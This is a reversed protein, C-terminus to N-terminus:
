YNIFLIILLYNIFFIQLFYFNSKNHSHDTDYYSYSSPSRSKSYSRGSYSSYDRRSDVTLSHSKQEIKGFLDAKSPENRSATENLKQIIEQGFIENKKSNGQSNGQVESIKINEEKNLSNNLIISSPQKQNINTSVNSNFKFKVSERKPNTERNM